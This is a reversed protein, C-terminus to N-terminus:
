LDCPPFCGELSPQSTLSPNPHGPLGTSTRLVPERVERDAKELAFTDSDVGVASGPLPIGGSGPPNGDVGVGLSTELLQGMVTLQQFSKHVPSQSPLSLKETGTAMGGDDVHTPFRSASAAEGARHWLWRSQPRSPVRQRDSRPPFLNHLLFQLSYLGESGLLFM